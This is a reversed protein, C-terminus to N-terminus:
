TRRMDHISRVVGCPWKLVVEHAVAPSPHVLTGILGATFFM